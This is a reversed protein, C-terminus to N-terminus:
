AAGASGARWLAFRRAAGSQTPLVMVAYGFFGFFGSQIPRFIIIVIPSRQARGAPAQCSGGGTIHYPYVCSVLAGSIEPAKKMGERRRGDQHLEAGVGSSSGRSFAAEAKEPPFNLRRSNESRDRFFGHLVCGGGAGVVSGVLFPRSASGDRRPYFRDYLLKFHHHHNCLM